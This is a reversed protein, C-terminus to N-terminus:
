QSFRDDGPVLFVPFDATSLLDSSFSEVDFDVGTGNAEPM